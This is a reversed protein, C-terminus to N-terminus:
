LASYSVSRAHSKERYGEGFKHPHAPDHYFCYGKGEPWTIALQACFREVCHRNTKGHCGRIGVGGVHSQRSNM